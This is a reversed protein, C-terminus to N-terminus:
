KALGGLAFGIEFYALTAATHRKVLDRVPEEMEALRKKQEPDRAEFITNDLVFIAPGSKRRPRAM